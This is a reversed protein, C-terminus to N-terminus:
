IKRNTVFNWGKVERVRDLGGTAAQTVYQMQCAKFRFSIKETTKGDEKATLTYSTVVVSKFLMQLFEMPEEAGAKRFTVTAENFINKRDILNGSFTTCFAQFLFPSAKDVEKEIDFGFKAYQARQSKMEGTGPNLLDDFETAASGVDFDFIEIAEFFAHDAAEGKVRKDNSELQLFADIKM